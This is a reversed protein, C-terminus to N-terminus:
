SALRIAGSLGGQISEFDEYNGDSQKGMKAKENRGAADIAIKDMIQKDEKLCKLLGVKSSGTLRRGDSNDGRTVPEWMPHGLRTPSPIDLYEEWHIPEDGEATHACKLYFYNETDLAAMAMSQGPNRSQQKVQHPVPRKDGAFGSRGGNEQLDKLEASLRTIEAEADALAKAQPSEELIEGLKKPEETVEPKTAM